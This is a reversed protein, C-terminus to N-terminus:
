QRGPVPAARNWRTPAAVRDLRDTRLAPLAPVFDGRISVLVGRTPLGSCRRVAAVAGLAPLMPSEGPQTVRDAERRWGIATMQRRQSTVHAVVAAGSATPRRPRRRGTYGGPRDTDAEFALLWCARPRPSSRVFPFRQAGAGGDKTPSSLKTAETGSHESVVAREGAGSCRCHAGSGDLKVVASLV